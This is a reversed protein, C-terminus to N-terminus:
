QTPSRSRLPPSARLSEVSRVDSDPSMRGSDYSGGHERHVQGRKEERAGLSAALGLDSLRVTHESVQRSPVKESMSLAVPSAVIPSPPSTSPIPPMFSVPPRTELWGQETSACDTTTFQHCLLHTPEGTPKRRPFVKPLFFPRLSVSKRHTTPTGRGSEVVYSRSYTKIKRM